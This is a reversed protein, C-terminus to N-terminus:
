RQSRDIRSTYKSWRRWVGHGRQRSSPPPTAARARRSPRESRRRAEAEALGGPHGGGGSRRAPWDGGVRAARATRRATERWLEAVSLGAAAPAEPAERWGEIWARTRPMSALRLQPHEGKIGVGMVTEPLLPHGHSAVERTAFPALLLALGDPTFRWYDWPHEHIHFLMVSALVCVGGPKLVRHMEAVARLPDAVHELTDVSIVAGVSGDAFSLRHMDEVRDVNPGEFLDCGIFDRGAFISRLLPGHEQGAASRAGLEVIPEDLELREAVDAVFDHVVQRM